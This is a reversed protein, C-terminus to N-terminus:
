YGGGAGGGGVSRTTSSQPDGMVEGDHWEPDAALLERMQRYRADQAPDAANRHYSERDEFLVALWVEDPDRDSRYAYTAIFGPVGVDEYTSTLAALEAARGPKVQMRAITGYM